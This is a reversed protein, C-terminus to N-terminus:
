AYIRMSGRSLTRTTFSFSRSRRAGFARSDIRRHASPPLTQSPTDGERIPSPDPSPATGGGWFNKKSKKDPLPANRIKPANQTSTKINIYPTYFLTSFCNQTGVALQDTIECPPRIMWSIMCMFVSGAPLALLAGEGLAGRKRPGRPVDARPGAGHSSGAPRPRLAPFRVCDLIRNSLHFHFYSVTTKRRIPTISYEIVPTIRHRLKVLSKRAESGGGM